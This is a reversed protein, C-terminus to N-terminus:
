YEGLYEDITGETYGIGALLPRIFDNIFEGLPLDATSKSIIIERNEETGGLDSCEEFSVVIYNM